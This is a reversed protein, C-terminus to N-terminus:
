FTPHIAMARVAHTGGWELPPILRQKEREPIVMAMQVNCFDVIIKALM